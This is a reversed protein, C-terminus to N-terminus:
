EDLNSEILKVIAEMAADQDSGDVRVILEDGKAAGLMMIGVMSKADYEKDAKGLIIKSKFKGALKVVAMAPRAHLGTESKIVVKQEIM